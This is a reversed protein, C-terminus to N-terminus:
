HGTTTQIQLREARVQHLDDQSHNRGVLLDFEVALILRVTFWDLNKSIFVLEHKSHTESNTM